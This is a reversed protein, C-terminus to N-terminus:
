DRGMVVAATKFTDKVSRRDREYQLREAILMVTQHERDTLNTWGDLAPTRRKTPRTRRPPLPM